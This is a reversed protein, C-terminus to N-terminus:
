KCYLQVLIDNLTCNNSFSSAFDSFTHTQMFKVFYTVYYGCTTSNLKQLKPTVYLRRTSSFLHLFNVLSVPLKAKKINGLSDCVNIKDCTLQIAIWHSGSEWRNDMNVVLFSPYHRIRLNDLENVAFTGLYNPVGNLNQNIQNEDMKIKILKEVM